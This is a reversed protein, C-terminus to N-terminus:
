HKLPQDPSELDPPLAADPDNPDPAAGVRYAESAWAGFDINKCTASCFPRYANSSSYVSDGGCRPCRVTRPKITTPTTPDDPVM